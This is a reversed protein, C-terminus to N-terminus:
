KTKKSTGFTDNAQPGTQTLIMPKTGSAADANQNVKGEQIVKKAM